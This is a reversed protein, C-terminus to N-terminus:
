IVNLRRACDICLPPYSRPNKKTVYEKNVIFAEGCERCNGKGSNQLRSLVHARMVKVLHTSMGGSGGETRGRFLLSLLVM